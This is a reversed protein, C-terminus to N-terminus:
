CIRRDNWELVKNKYRLGLTITLGQLFGVFMQRFLRHLEKLISYSSGSRFNTKCDASMRQGYKAHRVHSGFGSSLASHLGGM